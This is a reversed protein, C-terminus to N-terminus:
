FTNCLENCVAHRPISVVAHLLIMTKQEARDLVGSWLLVIM